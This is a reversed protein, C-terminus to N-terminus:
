VSFLPKIFKSLSTKFHTPHGPQEVALIKELWETIQSQVKAIAFQIEQPTLFQLTVYDM